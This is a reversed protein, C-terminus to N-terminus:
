FFLAWSSLLCLGSSRDSFSVSLSTSPLFSSSFDVAALVSAAARNLEQRLCRRLVRCSCLWLFTSSFLLFSSSTVCSLPCESAGATNHLAAPPLRYLVGM